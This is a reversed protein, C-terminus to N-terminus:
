WRRRAGPQDKEHVWLMVPVPSGAFPDPADIQMRMCRGSGSMREGSDAHGIETARVSHTAEQRLEVDEPRRGSAGVDAIARDVRRM